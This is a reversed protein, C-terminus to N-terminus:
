AGMKEILPPCPDEGPTEWEEWHWGCGCPWAQERAPVAGHPLPKNLGDSLLARIIDMSERETFAYLAKPRFRYPHDNDQIKGLASRGVNPTNRCIMRTIGTSYDAYELAIGAGSVEPHTVSVVFTSIVGPMPPYHFRPQVSQKSTQDALVDILM